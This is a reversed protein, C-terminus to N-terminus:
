DFVSAYPLVGHYGANTVVICYILFLISVITGYLVKKGISKVNNIALPILIIIPLGFIYQVRRILPISYLISLFATIFQLNFYVKYKATNDAYLSTFLLISFQMFINIYGVTGSNWKTNFYKAYKTYSVLLGVIRNIPQAFLFMLASLVAIKKTTIKIEPLFYTVIFILCSSHFGSAILVPILFKIFKREYVYKISVLLIACALMERMVNFSAFYYTSSFLMFVSLAPYPSEKYSHFFCLFLFVLSVFFVLTKFDGGVNSIIKNLLYYLIEIHTRQGGKIIKFYYEYAQYDTGIYYRFASVLFMPLMAILLLIFKCQYENGFVRLVVPKLHTSIIMLAVSFCCVM